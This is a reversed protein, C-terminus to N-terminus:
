ASTKLRAGRSWAIAEGSPEIRFLMAEDRGECRSEIRWASIPITAKGAVHNSGLSMHSFNKLPKATRDRSRVQGLPDAPMPLVPVPKNRAVCARELGFVCVEGHCDRARGSRLGRVEIWVDADPLLRRLFSDVRWDVSAAAVAGRSPAGEQNDQDEAIEEEEKWEAVEEYVEEDENEEGADDADFGTGVGYDGGRSAPIKSVPPFISTNDASLHTLLVAGAPSCCERRLEELCAGLRAGIEDHHIASAGQRRKDRLLKVRPDVSDEADESKLDGDGSGKSTGSLSLITWALVAADDIIVVYGKTSEKGEETDRNARRELHSLVQSLRHKLRMLAPRADQHGDQVSGSSIDDLADLYVFSEDLLVKHSTGTGMKRLASRTHAEGTGTCGIWIVSHHALLAHRAYFLPLFDSPAPYASTCILHTDPPALVTRTSDFHGPTYQSPFTLLSTFPVEM